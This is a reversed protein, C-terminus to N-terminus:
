DQDINKLIIKEDGYDIKIAVDEDTNKNRGRFIKGFSGEGIQKDIIYKNGIIISM